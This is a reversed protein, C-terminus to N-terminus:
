CAVPVFLYGFELGTHFTGGIDSFRLLLAVFDLKVNEGALDLFCYGFGFCLLFFM